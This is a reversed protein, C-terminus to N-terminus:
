IWQEEFTIPGLRWRGATFQPSPIDSAVVFKIATKLTNTSPPSAGGGVLGTAAETWTRSATTQELVESGPTEHAYIRVRDAGAPFIPVTIKCLYNLSVTISGAPSPKTEQSSTNNYWSYLVSYTREPLAGGAVEELKPTDGLPSAVARVPLWYFAETQSYNGDTDKLSDFFSLAYDLEDQNVATCSFQYTRRGAIGLPRRQEWGKISPYVSLPLRKVEQLEYSPGRPPDFTKVAM